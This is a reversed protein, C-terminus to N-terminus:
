IFSLLIKEENYLIKWLERLHTDIRFKLAFGFAMLKSQICFLFLLLLLTKDTDIILKSNVHSHLMWANMFVYNEPIKTCTGMMDEIWEHNMILFFWQSIIEGDKQNFMEYKELLYKSTAIKRLFKLHSYLKDEVWFINWFKKKKRFKWKM